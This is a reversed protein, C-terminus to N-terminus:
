YGRQLNLVYFSYGGKLFSDPKTNFPHWKNNLLAPLPKTINPPYQASSM